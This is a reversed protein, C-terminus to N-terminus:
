CCVLWSFCFMSIFHFLRLTYQFLLLFVFPWHIRKMKSREKVNVLLGTGTHQLSHSSPFTNINSSENSCSTHCSASLKLSMKMTSTQCGSSLWDWLCLRDGMHLKLDVALSVTVDWGIVAVLWGQGGASRQNQVFYWTFIHQKVSYHNIFFM